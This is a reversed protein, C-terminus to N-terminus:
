NARNELQRIAAKAQRTGVLSLGLQRAMKRVSGTKRNLAAAARVVSAGESSLKRLREIDAETWSRSNTM